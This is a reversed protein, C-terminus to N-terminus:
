QPAIRVEPGIRATIALDTPFGKADIALTLWPRGISRRHKSDLIMVDALTHSRGPEGKLPSWKTSLRNFDPIRKPARLTGDLVQVRLHRFAKIAPPVVHAAM